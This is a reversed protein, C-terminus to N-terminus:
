QKKCKRINIEEHKEKNMNMKNLSHYLEHNITQELYRNDCFGYRIYIEKKPWGDDTMKILSAGISNEFNKLEEKGFKNLLYSLWYKDPILKIEIPKYNNQIYIQEIYNIEENKNKVENIKNYFIFLLEGIIVFILINKINM